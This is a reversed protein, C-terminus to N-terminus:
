NIDTKFFNFPVGPQVQPPKLEKWRDYVGHENREKHVLKAFYGPNEPDGAKELLENSLQAPNDIANSLLLLTFTILLFAGTVYKVLNKM